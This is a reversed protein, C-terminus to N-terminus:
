KSAALTFAKEPILVQSTLETQKSCEPCINGKKGLCVKHVPVGCCVSYKLYGLNEKCIKCPLRVGNMLLDKYMPDKEPNMSIQSNLFITNVPIQSEPYKKLQEFCLLAGYYEALGTVTRGNNDKLTLDVGGCHLLLQLAETSKYIACIMLPTWGEKTKANIINKFETPNKKYTRKLFYELCCTANFHACYHLCTWYFGKVSIEENADVNYKEVYEKLKDLGKTSIAGHVRNKTTNTQLQLIYPPKIIQM